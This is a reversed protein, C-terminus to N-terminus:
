NHTTMSISSGFGTISLLLQAHFCFLSTGFTLSFCLFILIVSRCSILASSPCNLDHLLIPRCIYFPSNYDNCIGCAVKDLDSALSIDVERNVILHYQDDPFARIVWFCAAVLSVLPHRDMSETLM